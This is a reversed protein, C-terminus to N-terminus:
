VNMNQLRRYSCTLGSLVSLNTTCLESYSHTTLCMNLIIKNCACDCREWEMACGLKGCVSADGAFQKM